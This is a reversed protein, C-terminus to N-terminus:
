SRPLPKVMVPTISVLVMPICALDRPICGQAQLAKDMARLKGLETTARTSFHVHREFGDAYVFTARLTPVM